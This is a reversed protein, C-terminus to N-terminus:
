GQTRTAAISTNTEEARKYNEAIKELVAVYRDILQAFRDLQEKDEMFVRRFAERAEGEWMSNLSEESATLTEVRSRFDANLEALTAAGSSLNSATVNFNANM